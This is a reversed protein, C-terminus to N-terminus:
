VKNRDEAKTLYDYLKEATSIDIIKGCGDKIVGDTYKEGFNLDYIFFEINSFTDNMVKSLLEVLKEEYLYYPHLFSIGFEASLIERAEKTRDNREKLFDIYSVFEEKTLVCKSDVVEGVM